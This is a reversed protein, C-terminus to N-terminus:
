KSSKPQKVGLKMLGWLGDEVQVLKFQVGWAIPVEHAEKIAIAAPASNFKIAGQQDRTPYGDKTDFELRFDTKDDPSQLVEVSEIKAGAAKIARVAGVSLSFAHNPNVSLVCDTSRGRETPATTKNFKKYM